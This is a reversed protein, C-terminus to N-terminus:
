PTTLTNSRCKMEREYDPALRNFGGRGPYQESM